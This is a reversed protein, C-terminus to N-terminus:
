TKIANLIFDSVDKKRREMTQYFEQEDGEFLIQTVIPRGVFPFICLSITNMLLQKPEMEIIKGEEMEKQITRLFPSIDPLNQSVTKKLAEPDKNLEHIVFEPIYPNKILTDIYSDAFRKIAHEVSLGGQFIARMENFTGSLVKSFVADFLKQKSRFYYHLLAKNINAEDAIEQMRAGDLGKRIFVTQAAELITEETNKSEGM